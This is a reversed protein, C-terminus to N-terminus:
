SEGVFAVVSAVVVAAAVVVVAFAFAFAFAGVESALSGRRRRKRLVEFNPWSERFKAFNRLNERRPM